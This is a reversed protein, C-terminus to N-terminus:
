GLRLMRQIPMMASELIEDKLVIEPTQHEMCLYLKELNNLKM